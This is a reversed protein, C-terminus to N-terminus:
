GSPLLEPLYPSRVPVPWGIRRAHCALALVDLDLAAEPALGRAAVAYHERHAELADALALAFGERDGEVLQSLLVVPPGLFGDGALRGAARLARDLAPEPDAGRLYDHLAACYAGGPSEYPGQEFFEPPMLVCDALPGRAGVVLACAVADRWHGPGPEYAGRWAPLIRRTGGVTVGVSGGPATRALRFAAGGAEAGLRLDEHLLPDGPSEAARSLARLRLGRLLGTMGVALDAPDSAPDRFRALGARAPDAAEARAPGHPPAPHAPRDVTLPGSALATLADPRKDRGYARVRPGATAFGTVLAEPLYDSDVAIRWGLWRHAMAALAIASLPLLTRPPPNPLAVASDGFRGRHIELQRALARGFGEEDEAALARLAALAAREALGTDGAGLGDVIADIVALRGAAEVPDPADRNEQCGYVYAMLAHVLAPGPQRENGRLPGALHVLLEGYHDSRATVVALWLVELWEAPLIARGRDAEVTGDPVRGGTYRIGEGVYHIFVDLREGAALAVSGVAAATASEVAVQIDKGGLGPDTVSRAAVYDLLDDSIMQWGYSPCADHRMRHVEGALRGAFDRQAASLAAAGVRHREIRAGM